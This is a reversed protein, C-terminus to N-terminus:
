LHSNNSTYNVYNNYKLYSASLKLYFLHLHWTGTTDPRNNCCKGSAACSHESGFFEPVSQSESRVVPM